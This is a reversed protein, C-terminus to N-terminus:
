PTVVPAASAGLIRGVEALVESPIASAKIIYGDAHLERAKELDTEQGQNSLFIIKARPALQEKRLAEVTEFGDLGPMIIDLLMVDPPKPDQRLATLLAEGGQATEVDYGANRFKTAYLGLLFKDDDVLYMRYAM